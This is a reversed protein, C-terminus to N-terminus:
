KAESEISMEKENAFNFLLMALDHSCYGRSKMSRCKCIAEPWYAAAAIRNDGLDPRIAVRLGYATQTVDGNALRNVALEMLSEDFM